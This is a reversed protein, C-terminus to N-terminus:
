SRNRKQLYCRESYVELKTFSFVGVDTNNCKGTLLSMLSLAMSIVCQLFPWALLLEAHNSQTAKGIPPSNETTVTKNEKSM